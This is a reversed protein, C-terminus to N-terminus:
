SKPALVTVGVWCMHLAIKVRFSIVFPLHTFASGRGGAGRGTPLFRPPPVGRTGEALSAPPKAPSLSQGSGRGRGGEAKRPQRTGPGQAPRCRAWRTRRLFWMTRPVSVTVGKFGPAGRQSRPGDTATFHPDGAPESEVPRLGERCGTQDGHWREASGQSTEARPGADARGEADREAPSGCRQPRRRQARCPGGTRDRLGQSDWWPGEVKVASGGGGARGTFSPGARGRPTGRWHGGPPAEGRSTILPSDPPDLATAQNGPQSFM